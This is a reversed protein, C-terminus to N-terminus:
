GTKNEYVIAGDCITFLIDLNYDEQQLDEMDGSLIVLDALMGPRIKGLIKGCYGSTAAASSYADVAQELTVAQNRAGDYWPKRRVAHSIGKRVDSSVIPWDSGFVLFANNQLADQWAFSTDWQKRPVLTHWLTKPPREHLPQMSTVVHNEGFRPIDEPHCLEIHEIRHYIRHGRQKDVEVNEKRATAVADLMSKVSGDGICHAAVQLGLRDALPVLIDLDVQHFEPIGPSPKQDLRFATDKEIVGDMFIKITDCRVKSHSALYSPMDKKTHPNPRQAHHKHHKDKIVDRIHESLLKLTTLHPLSTAESTKVDKVHAHRDETSQGLITLLEDHLEKATIEKSRAKNLAKHAKYAKLVDEVMNRDAVASISTNVRLPLRGQQELELLLMLFSIDEAPQALGMRHVGTIGQRSLERCVAELDDLQDEISKAFKAQLPGCLFYYVEPERFEGSPLNDDGLVIKEELGLEEILYPYPPMEHLLDAEELATTNAWATHLDHAFVVLPRDDVLEDLFHRCTQTPIIPEDFYHLGFVYFAELEPHGSLYDAIRKKFGDVNKVEEVDCTGKRQMAVSLHLHSDVFGPAVSNGRADIVRTAAGTMKEIEDSSGIRTILNDTIAIDQICKKPGTGLCANTIVLDAVADPHYELEIEELPTPDPPYRSVDVPKKDPGLLEHYKKVLKKYLVSESSKPCNMRGGTTQVIRSQEAKKRKQIL